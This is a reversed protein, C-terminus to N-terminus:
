HYCVCPFRFRFLQLFSTSLISFPSTCYMTSSHLTSSFYCITHTKHSINPPLQHKVGPSLFASLPLHILQLLIYFLANYLVYLVLFHLFPTLFQLPSIFSVHLSLLIFIHFFASANVLLFFSLLRSFLVM